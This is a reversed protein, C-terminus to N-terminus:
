FFKHYQNKNKYKMIEPMFYKDYEKYENLLVKNLVSKNVNLIDEEILFLTIRKNENFIQCIKNNTLQEKIEEKLISLIKEVKNILHPNRIHYNSLKSLLNLLEIM